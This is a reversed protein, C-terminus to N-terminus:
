TELPESIRIQGDTNASSYLCVIKLDSATNTAITRRCDRLVVYMETKYETRDEVSYKEGMNM